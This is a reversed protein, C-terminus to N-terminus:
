REATPRDGLQRDVETEAALWDELASGNCFGRREAAFYAALEIMQHRQEPNVASHPADPATAPPRQLVLSKSEPEKPPIHLTNAM